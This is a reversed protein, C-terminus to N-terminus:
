HKITVTKVETFFDYSDKAGERGLGSAKMGGFPLNLDRILWCNTWVLGTQLRKAVRHVRGVDKTWVTAALGFKVGNAKDIVEEETDFPVICTVPGFIEEQMCTSEESLGIIVTPLMFYGGQNESPIDLTDVGEGCLVTAGEALAKKVYNRVKTLHHESILAGMCASPDSPSGVKWTKAADVFRQLFDDYIATQVYIRSTCLCIEGQNSFSSKVTTNICEELDADKFIIAPNKGGLELSMKKCFPASREIIGQATSTSGTFSIIPVDPHCVLADGARPGTGFVINVVGPPVGAEKLLKCMMWATVSTMESPKAVVTNGCAIAPAIKWTLLYLPLNWPSILGAVGVPTRVTYHMCNLHDMQTCDTTHHLISSAFFRFNYVSRPIDLSAAFTVTKGQDRSEAKAFEDLNREIFDALKCIITSREQPSRSSWAPFADKAAKVAADIETVVGAAISSGSYRLMFRGLEKFDKYLELAIPRQTQLEIIANMGKTLCKPKKKVVEGTGKHLVSVLRRITAPESVTQYHIIVPFGQTIPVDFNFVLVQARFRTCAKIPDNPSCFVCGVNIKIIDMGTLILGVHDGAAAWDVAEDHLTIGKVACTENPPMALLRDGIQIFGAEIKGTVCFGSGQDIQEMLCPGKYWSSIENVKSTKIMNEGSLGSTPVYSVDNEKFGAQKLFSGLKSTIEQFRDQQWNVQDMKNVAVVLQTVGLSRVLIAHERTQGGAEFGAEFEGRSADVVLIAVDAQAAGTIMNPIFDKHGPADMLTIVKSKTQFETMGVDMTVGRQREEGTEDLVWAYAFSAKGAKKSEQEYKHMTRKNVHGLLYLLHGMLTSKGADVHGIVVLNLLPKGGQRKELELKVNLKQKSKSTSKSTYSQYDQGPYMNVSGVNQSGNDTEDPAEFMAQDKICSYVTQGNEEPTACPIDFGMTQKKGSIIMKAIKPIMENQTERSPLERTKRPISISRTSSSSSTNEARTPELGPIVHLLESCNADLLGSEEKMCSDTKSVSILDELSIGSLNSLSPKLKEPRNSLLTSLPFNYSSHIFTDDTSQQTYESTSGVKLSFNSQATNICIDPPTETKVLPCHKYKENALNQLSPFIAERSTRGSSPLDEATTKLNCDQQFILDLAKAHDFKCQLIADIMVQEAVTEGLIARMQDLCSYMLAQDAANLAVDAAKPEVDENEEEELPETFSLQRDRKSYIFQAATAPSIGYDDDVSHGYLDEDDFDDDYNYGRVNRHRAM